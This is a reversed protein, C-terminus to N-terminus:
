QAGTPGDAPPGSNPPVGGTLSKLFEVLDSREQGNLHISKMEKDLYPNSNGGGAYFDVVAKLTKLSGDHMYPATEAINRLTSTKFAGTDTVNKTEHYRGEDSFGGDGTVGAGINHFKGDTFLATHEGITHCAACNGRLPDLYAALGRVQAANLAHKDGGFQYRDFASDGSLLTREFSALAAEVRGITVDDSGFTQKFQARYAADKAIGAVSSDHARGMELPDAIPSAAQQELSIARGDWFQFPQYAANLVTPSNRVGTAGGVGRALSVGDTFSYQPNHCSSCALTNDVSLRKDYFLQRGLAVAAATPPNDRPVPLAPLGLPVAIAIAQGVPRNSVDPTPTTVSKHCGALLLLAGVCAMTKHRVDMM